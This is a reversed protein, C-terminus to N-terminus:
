LLPMRPTDHGPQFRRNGDDTERNREGEGEDLVRVHGAHPVTVSAHERARRHAGDRQERRREEHARREGRDGAPGVRTESPAAAM